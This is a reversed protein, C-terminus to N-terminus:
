LIAPVLDELVIKAWQPDRIDIAYADKWNPNEQLVLNHTRLTAFAPSNKNVEGLSLYGLLIKGDEKLPQLDPHHTGDLVVLQYPKFEELKAQDAYYVAFKEKENEAQATFPWACLMMCLGFIISRM